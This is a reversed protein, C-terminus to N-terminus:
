SGSEIELTLKEVDQRIADSSPCARLVAHLRELAERKFGRQMYLQALALHASVRYPDSEIASTYCFYAARQEGKRQHMYGLAAWAAANNLDAHLVQRLLKCQHDTPPALRPDVSLEASPVISNVAFSFPGAIVM